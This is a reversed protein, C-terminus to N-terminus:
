GLGAAGATRFRVASAGDSRLTVAGDAPGRAGPRGAPAGGLRGRSSESRGGVREGGGKRHAGNLAPGREGM